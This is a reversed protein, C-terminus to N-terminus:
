TITKFGSSTLKHHSAIDYIYIYITWQFPTEFSVNKSGKNVKTSGLKVMEKKESPSKTKSKQNPKAAKTTLTAKNLVVDMEELAM